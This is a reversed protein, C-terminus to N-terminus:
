KAIIEKIVYNNDGDVLLTFTVEQGLSLDSLNVQEQTKFNMKMKPWKMEPIPEHKINVMHKDKMIKNIRGKGMVERMHKDMQKESTMHGSKSGSMMQGTQSNGHGHGGDDHGPGAIASTSLSLGTAFLIVSINNMLKIIKM